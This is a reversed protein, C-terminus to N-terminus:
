QRAVVPPAGEAGDATDEIGKMFTPKAQSRKEGAQSVIQGAAVRRYKGSEENAVADRRRQNKENALGRGTLGRQPKDLELNM